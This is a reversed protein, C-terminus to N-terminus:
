KITDIKSSDKKVTDNPKPQQGNVTMSVDGTTEIGAQVNSSSNSEVTTKGSLKNKYLYIAGVAILALLVILTTWPIKKHPNIPKIKM